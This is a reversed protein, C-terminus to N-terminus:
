TMDIGSNLRRSSSAGDTPRVSSATSSSHNRAASSSATATGPTQTVSAPTRARSRHCLRDSGPQPPDTTRVDHFIPWSSTSTRHGPPSGRRRPGRPPRTRSGWRRPPCGRTCCGAPALRVSRREDAPSRTTSASRSPGPRTAMEPHGHRQRRGFVHAGHHELHEVVPRRASCRPATGRSRRTGSPRGTGYVRRQRCALLAPAEVRAERHREVPLDADLQTFANPAAPRARSGSRSCARAPRHRRPIRWTVKRRSFGVVHAPSRRDGVSERAPVTGRSRRRRERADLSTTRTRRPRPSSRGRRRRAASSRRCRGRPSRRCPTPCPHRVSATGPHAARRRRGCAARLRHRVEDREVAPVQGIGDDEFAVSRTVIWCIPAAINGGPSSSARTSRRRAPDTAPLPQVRSPAPPRPESTSRM